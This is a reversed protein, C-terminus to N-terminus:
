KWVKYYNYVKGISRTDLLKTTALPGNVSDLM